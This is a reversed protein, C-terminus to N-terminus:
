TRILIGPRIRQRERQEQEMKERREEDHYVIFCLDWNVDPTVHVVNTQMYKLRSGIWVERSLHYFQVYIKRNGLKNYM